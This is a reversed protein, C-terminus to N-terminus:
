RPNFEILWFDDFSVYGSQIESIGHWGSMRAKGTRGAFAGTVEVVNDEEPHIGMILHDPYQPDSPASELSKVKISGDPFQFTAEVDFVECPPPATTSCKAQHIQTGLKEGTASLMDGTFRFLGPETAENKYRGNFRVAITDGRDSMAVLQTRRIQAPASGESGAIVTTFLLASAVMATLHSRQM